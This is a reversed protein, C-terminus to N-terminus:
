LAGAPWHDSAHHQEPRKFVCVRMTSLLLPMVTVKTGKRAKGKEAVAQHMCCSHNTKDKADM